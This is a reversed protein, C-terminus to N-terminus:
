APVKDPKAKAGLISPSPRQAAHKVLVNEAAAFGDLTGDALGAVLLTRSEVAETVGMWHEHRAYFRLVSEYEHIRNVLEQMAVDVDEHLRDTTNTM